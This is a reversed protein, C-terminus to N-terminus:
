GTEGTLDALRDLVTALDPKERLLGALPDHGREKMLGPVTDITWAEISLADTVASWDLPMSVPAGPRPRVCWPAALLKGHGNQLYDLYVKGERAGVARAITATEPVRAVTIRALLEALQRAQEHTCQGGLPILVHLGTSGSTKVCSPLGIRDCVQHVERAVHIVDTFPAGKPDLDLITWDPRELASVRSSWIHLPITGLNIVYALSEVDDCIFYHTERGESWVSARRIWDPAWAPADKQFFSKGDIGDPFRTMVVPRDALYPLMWTAVSRYYEILDGKTYGENPWFVKAVNTVMVLPRPGDGVEPDASGIVPDTGPRICDEVPKDGRCRVFVPHRVLADDPWEKYRVEVVQEPRVWHHDPGPPVAGTCAPRDVLLTDLRRRVEELEEDTFGTGVAGAYELRGGCYMALDLAGFGVRAGKPDTFGVVVFDDTRELRIKLWDGSRGPRYPSDLRKAVIGELGMTRVEEFLAEGQGVVHDAYRVPGVPPLIQQLFRTRRVLTLARLDYGEIAPLDFAYLVAPYEVAARQIEVRRTLRGRRQLRQFSPRGTEDHVVVEGDLVFGDHPLRAIAQAIEPFTATIDHGRRSLLLPRTGDRGALVRYGDYKLEFLWAPDTFADPRSEANMIELDRATVNAHAAGAQELEVRLGGARDVGDRLEEVSLGSFISANSWEPEGETRAWGDREKILLWERETKRLKVLTWLGHLKYGHLEFLLKGQEYSEDFPLREVWYGRDWVIVAGAGYNGAPIIGEFDAYEVPHDETEVALRKDAPHDSPGRPVAWSKLVGDHELRFDFHLHRAAHQQVVFIRGGGHGTAFPEPTRDPERKARYAELRASIEKDIAAM